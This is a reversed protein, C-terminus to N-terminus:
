YITQPFKVLKCSQQLQAWLYVSLTLLDSTLTVALGCTSLYAIQSANEQSDGSHMSM